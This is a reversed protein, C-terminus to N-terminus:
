QAVGLRDALGLYAFTREIGAQPRELDVSDLILMNPVGKTSKEDRPWPQSFPFWVASGIQYAAMHKCTLPAEALFHTLEDELTKAQEFYADHVTNLNSSKGGGKGQLAIKAAKAEVILLGFRRSVILFDMERFPERAGNPRNSFWKLVRSSSISM